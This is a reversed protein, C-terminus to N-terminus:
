ETKTTNVPAHAGPLKQYGGATESVLGQLELRVLISSVQEATLGSLSIIQDIPSPSYEILDFIKQQDPDLSAPEADNKPPPPGPPFIGWNLEAVIDEITEALAAGQRLLYHCGKSSATHIPGPVAFVERGQEAALRATILSGSRIGAEVVLTGLSLGSIIRNRQPFNSRRPPTGPPYETVVLGSSSIQQILSKNVAPYFQDIGTATVAITDGDTELAGRHAHTDIGSAAGSTVTFGWRALDGAFMQATQMGSRSARRSGVVSIQPSNLLNKNGLYFLGLPPPDIQNLLAPFGRDTYPLYGAGCQTLRHLDKEVVLDVASLHGFNGSKQGKSVLGTASLLSCLRAPPTNVVNYPSGLHNVLLRKQRLSFGRLYHLRLWSELM